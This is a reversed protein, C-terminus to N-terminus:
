LPEDEPLTSLLGEDGRLRKLIDEQARGRYLQGLGRQYQRKLQDPRWGPDLGAKTAAGSLAEDYEAEIVARTRRPAASPLQGRLVDIREERTEQRTTADGEEDGLGVFINLAEDLSGAEELKGEGFMSEAVRDILSGVGKPDAAYISKAAELTHEYQKIVEAPNYAKNLAGVAEPKLWINEQEEPTLDEFSEGEKLDRFMPKKDPTEGTKIQWYQQAVGEQIRVTTLDDWSVAIAGTLATATAGKMARETPLADIQVQIKDREDAKEEGSLAGLRITLRNRRNGVATGADNAAAQREGEPLAAIMSGIKGANLKKTPDLLYENLDARTAPAEGEEAGFGLAAKSGKMGTRLDTYADSIARARNFSATVTTRQKTEMLGTAQTLIKNWTDIKMKLKKLYTADPDGKRIGEIERLVSAQRAKEESSVKPAVPARVRSPDFGAAATLGKAGALAWIDERKEKDSQRKELGLERLQAARLMRQIAKGRTKPPSAKKPAPEAKSARLAAVLSDVDLEEDWNSTLIEEAM